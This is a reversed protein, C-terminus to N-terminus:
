IRKMNDFFGCKSGTILYLEELTNCAVDLIPQLCAMGEESGPGRTLVRLNSWLVVLTNFRPPPVIM